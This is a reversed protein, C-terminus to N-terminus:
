SKLQTTASTIAAAWDSRGNLVFRHEGQPTRVSLSNPAVPVFGLFRTWCPEVQRIDSLPIETRGSQVNFAHSSFVLRNSTLFLRGGVAEWGRQLNAAGDRILTEGPSLEIKM